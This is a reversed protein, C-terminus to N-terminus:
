KIKIKSFFIRLNSNQIDLPFNELELNEYFTGQLEDIQSAIIRGDIDTFVRLDTDHRSKNLQNEIYLEPRWKLRTIDFALSSVEPDHWKVELLVVAEFKQNQTDVQLLKIFSVRVLVDRPPTALNHDIRHM